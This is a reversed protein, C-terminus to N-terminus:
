RSLRRSFWVLAARSAIGINKAFHIDECMMHSVTTYDNPTAV